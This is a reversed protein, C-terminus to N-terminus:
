YICEIGNVYVLGKTKDINFTIDSQYVIEPIFWYLSELVGNIGEYYNNFDDLPITIGCVNTDDINNFDIKDGCGGLLLGYGNKSKDGILIYKEKINEEIVTYDEIDKESFHGIGWNGICYTLHKLNYDDDFEHSLGDIKNTMSLKKNTIIAAAVNIGIKQLDQTIDEDECDIINALEIYKYPSDTGESIQPDLCDGIEAIYLDENESILLCGDIDIDDDYVADYFTGYSDTPYIDYIRKSKDFFENIEEKCNLLKKFLEEKSIKEM